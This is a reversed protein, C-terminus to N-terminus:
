DSRTPTTYHAGIEREHHSSRLCLWVEIARYICDERQHRDGGIVPHIKVPRISGQTAIAAVPRICGRGDPCRGSGGARIVFRGPRSVPLIYRGDVRHECAQRTSQHGWSQALQCHDSWIHPPPSALRALAGLLPRICLRRAPRVADDAALPARGRAGGSRPGHSRSGALSGAFCEHQTAWLEVSTAKGTSGCQFHRNYPERARQLPMCSPFIRVCGSRM